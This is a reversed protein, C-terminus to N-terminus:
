QKMKLRIEGCHNCVYLECIFGTDAFIQKTESNATGLFFVNGKEPKVKSFGVNKCYPCQENLM